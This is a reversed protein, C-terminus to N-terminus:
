RSGVRSAPPDECSRQGLDSFTDAGYINWEPDLEFPQQNDTRGATVTCRRQLTHDVTAGAGWSEGPDVGIQGIIDQVVGNCSLALADDGNFTLNASVDCLEPHKIALGTDGGSCLVQMEGQALSGHLAWRSPEQKGNVFTQLECNDLSGGSLAFIELAKNKSTGEVYESFLLVAPAPPPEGVGGAGGEGSAGVTTAGGHSKSGASGSAGGTGGRSPKSEPNRASADDAAEGGAGAFTTYMPFDLVPLKGPPADSPAGSAGTVGDSPGQDSGAAAKQGRQPVVLEQGCAAASTVLLVWGWKSWHSM